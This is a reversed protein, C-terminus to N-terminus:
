ACRQEATAGGCRGGLVRILQSLPAAVLLVTTAVYLAGRVWVRVSGRRL